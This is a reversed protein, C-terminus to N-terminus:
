TEEAKTTKEAKTTDPKTTKEPKTADPKTTKEPKKTSEDPKETGTDSEDGEGTTSEVIEGTCTACKAPIMSSKYWGAAVKPCKDSALLGTEMCYSLQLVKDTYQEFSKAALNKHVRNMVTEFIVGAPNGTATIEKNYDYGFWVASIYYPTGAVCWRDNNSTTTGTKGFTTFGSVDYGRATGMSGYFVTRLLQNMVFSTEASIVQEGEPKNQLIVEGASNKVEYYSYPEYYKGGNGFTAFAAAMQLTTTGGSSGGTALASPSVSDETDNYTSIHFKETLYDYSLDFGMMMLLQAPVTNYSIAIAYQASVYSDPSGPDGGYNTPWRSGRWSIGYNKIKSSWTIINKDIAPAYITLPKISSGPQRAASVARNNSRNETKEGAGGVMAVIRGNYDMITMASQYMDKVDSVRQTPFNTRHVYVDELINQVRTDVASYIHLGGSYIMKNAEYNSYGQEKLDRIVSTIVYDVYYSQIENDTAKEVTEEHEAIYREDNTFILEYEVAEDYQEQTIIKQELMMGLCLEQRKKNNEPKWLPDYNAPWQTIAAISACEALNLESIDKGFYTEAATQVGYCNHSLYITNLYAELIEDKSYYKEMNLAHLIENFKRNLTLGKEETLNRILQMTITSGGRIDGSSIASRIVGFTSSYWDVGKHDEFRKDELAVFAKPMWESMNDMDVWVRNEEGHLKTLEVFEDEENKAYIITTQDQNEKYFDLDIIKEGNAISIMSGLIYVGIIVCTMFGTFAIALLIRLNRKKKPSMPKKDASTKKRM